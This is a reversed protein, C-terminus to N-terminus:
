KARSERIKTAVAAITAEFADLSAPPMQDMAVTISKFLLWHDAFEEPRVEGPRRTGHPIVALVLAEGNDLQLVDVMAWAGARFKGPRDVQAKALATALTASVFPQLHDEIAKIAARRATREEDTLTDGAHKTEDM